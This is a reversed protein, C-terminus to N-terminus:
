ECGVCGHLARCQKRVMPLQGPLGDFGRAPVLARTHAEADGPFRGEM